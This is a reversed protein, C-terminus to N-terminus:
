KKKRVHLIGNKTKRIAAGRADFSARRFLWNLSRKHARKNIQEQAKTAEKDNKEDEIIEDKADDIKIEEENDHTDEDDSMYYFCKGIFFLNKVIQDAQEQTVHQSKLQELFDTALRRLTEKDLYDCDAESEKVQRTEPDIGSFYVGYLRTSSSRIWAHPYLLMYEMVRWVSETETDYVSKPFTKTIKAFVNIAYYTVEWPVEVEMDDEENDATENSLEEAISKSHQLIESLSQILEPVQPRVQVGFTDIALGFVQCAARQLTSKNSQTLWKNLLRYITPLKDPIRSLLTKILAAAMERCKASEDNVLRMVLAFFITDYFESLIDEGFKSIVHHLLEMVSERGTEFVYELNKTLFSMQKKLRGQGQPYDMLFTFYVSRAQERIEKSQNTVFVSAITDMMEYLEPAMFKRSIIARLLAFITGHRELEEL